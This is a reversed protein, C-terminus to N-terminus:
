YGNLLEKIKEVVYLQEGETLTPFIPLSVTRASFSEANPTNDSYGM